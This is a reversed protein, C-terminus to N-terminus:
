YNNKTCDFHEHMLFTTRDELKMSFPKKTWLLFNKLVKKKLFSIIFKKQLAKIKPLKCISTGQYCSLTLSKHPFITPNNRAPNLSKSLTEIIQKNFENSVYLFFSTALFGNPWKFFFKTPFFIVMKDWETCRSIWHGGTHLTKQFFLM